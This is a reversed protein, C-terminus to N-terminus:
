KLSKKIQENVIKSFSVSKASEKILKAQKDRLKKVIDDELMVTVRRAM